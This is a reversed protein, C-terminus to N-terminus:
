INQWTRYAIMNRVCDYSILFRASLELRTMGAIHLLRILRVKNASVQANSSNQLNEAHTVWRCNEPTYDGNNNIRDLTHGKPREGMDLLFQKFDSQWAPCVKIGRAGYRSYSKHKPDNCRYKMARWGSYLPHKEKPNIAIQVNDYNRCGCSKVNGRQICSSEVSIFTSCDCQCLWVMRRSDRSIPKIVTLANYKNGTLDKANHHLVLAPLSSAEKANIIKSRM